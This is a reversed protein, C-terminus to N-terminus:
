VRHTPCFVRKSSRCRSPNSIISHADHILKQHVPTIVPKPVILLILNATVANLYDEVSYEPDRGTLVILLKKSTITSEGMFYPNITMQLSKATYM